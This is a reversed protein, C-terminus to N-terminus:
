QVLTFEYLEKSVLVWAKHSKPNALVLNIDKQWKKPLFYQHVFKGNRDVEVIRPPIKDNGQDALYYRDADESAFFNLAKPITDFPAPLANLKFETQNGRSFKHVTGNKLMSFVSGDISLSISTSLDPKKGKLYTAAESLTDGSKTYRWVQNSAPDQLYLMEGFSSIGTSVPFAEGTPKLATLKKRIIDYRYLVGNYDQLYLQRSSSELYIQGIAQNDPLVALETPDGGTLAQSVLRGDQTTYYLQGEYIAGLKTAEPLTVLPKVATLETAGSITFLEKETNGIITTAQSALKNNQKALEGKELIQMYLARAKSSNGQVRAQKADNFLTKMEEIVAVTVVPQDGREKQRTQISAGISALILLAIIAYWTRPSRKVARRLQKGIDQLIQIPASLFTLYALTKRSRRNGYHNVPVGSELTEKAGPLQLKPLPPLKPLKTQSVKSSTERFLTSSTPKVKEQWLTRTQEAVARGTRGTQKGVFAALQTVPKLIMNGYYAVISWATDIRQDLYLTERHDTITANEAAQLTTFHLIIANAKRFRLSKLRRALMIASEPFPQRLTLEVEDSTIASYLGPNGLLVIDGASVEGTILSNFIQKTSGKQIGPDTILNLKDDRLFYAEAGGAYAIHLEDGVALAILAHFCDALDSSSDKILQEILRNAKAIAREFNELPVHGEQRYYERAVVNMVSSGIPSGHSWPMDLQLVFYLKGLKADAVDAPGQVKSAVFLEPVKGSNTLRVHKTIFPM